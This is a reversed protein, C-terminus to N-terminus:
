ATIAKKRLVGLKELKAWARDMDSGDELSPRLELGDLIKISGGSGAYLMLEFISRRLRTAEDLHSLHKQDAVPDALPLTYPDHIELEKIGDSKDDERVAVSSNLDFDKFEALASPIDSNVNRQPRDERIKLKKTNATGSKIVATPYFRLTLPNGRTDIKQLSCVRGKNTRGIRGLVQCLRRLRTINNGAITLRSLCKMGVLENVGKLSNFNMNLVVVNPFSSAFDEPLDQLSCSAIDLLQLSLLANSPALCRPALRNSSLFVKRIDQTLGLDIDFLGGNSGSMQERASLVELSHCTALGFITSLFNQDVYLLTLSPFMSIDLSRLVNNSVKLSQLNFLTASAAFEYLRNYRLDVTTLSSLSGINRISTLQNHSLDM